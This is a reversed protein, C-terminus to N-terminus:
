WVKSDIKGGYSFDMVAFLLTKHFEIFIVNFVEPFHSNDCMGIPTM